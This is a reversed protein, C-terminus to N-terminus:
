WIQHFIIGSAGVVAELVGSACLVPFSVGSCGFVLIQLVFDGIRLIAVGSGGLM